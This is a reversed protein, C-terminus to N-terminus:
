FFEGHTPRLFFLVKAQWLLEAAAESDVHPLPMQSTVFNDGTLSCTGLASGDADM